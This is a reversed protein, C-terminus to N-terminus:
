HVYELALLLMRWRLPVVLLWAILQIRNPEFQSFQLQLRKICKDVFYEALQKELLGQERIASVVTSKLAPFSLYDRVTTEAFLNNRM